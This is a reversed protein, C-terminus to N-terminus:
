LVAAVLFFYFHLAPKDSMPLGHGFIAATPM